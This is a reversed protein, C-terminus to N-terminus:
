AADSEQAPNSDIPAIPDGVAPLAAILVDGRNQTVVATEDRIAQVGGRHHVPKLDAGAADVAEGLAAVAQKDDVAGVMEAHGVGRHDGSVAARAKSTLPALTPVAAEVAGAPTVAAVALLEAHEETAISLGTVARPRSGTPHVEVGTATPRTPRTSVAPGASSAGRSLIPVVDRVAGAAIAAGTAAGTLAPPPTSVAADSVHTATTRLTGTRAGVPTVPL